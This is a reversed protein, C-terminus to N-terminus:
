AMLSFYLYADRNKKKKRLTCKVQWFGNEELSINASSLDQTKFLFHWSGQFHWTLRQAWTEWIICASGWLNSKRLSRSARRGPAPPSPGRPGMPPARGGVWSRVLGGLRNEAVAVPARRFCSNLSSKVTKLCSWWWQKRGTMIKTWGDLRHQSLEQLMVIVIVAHFRRCVQRSWEHCQEQKEVDNRGAPATLGDEPGNMGGDVGWEDKRAGDACKPLFTLSLWSCNNFHLDTTQIPVSNTINVQRHTESGYPRDGGKVGSPARPEPAKPPSPLGVSPWDWLM